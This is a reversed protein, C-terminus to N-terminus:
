VSINLLYTLSAACSFCKKNCYAPSYNPIDIVRSLIPFIESSVKEESSREIEIYEALIREGEGADIKPDLIYDAKLEPIADFPEEMKSFKIAKKTSDPLKLNRLQLPDFGLDEQSKEVNSPMQLQVKLGPLEWHAGGKLYNSVLRTAQLALYSFIRQPPQMNEFSKWLSIETSLGKQIYMASAAFSFKSKDVIIKLDPILVNTVPAQSWKMINQSPNKGVLEYAKVGGDCLWNGFRSM